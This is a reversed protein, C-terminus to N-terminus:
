FVWQHIFHLLWGAEESTGM